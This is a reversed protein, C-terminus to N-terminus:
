GRSFARGARQADGYQAQGPAPTPGGYSDGAGGAGYSDLAADAAAATCSSCGSFIAATVAAIHSSLGYFRNATAAVTTCPITNGRPPFGTWAVRVILQEPYRFWWSIVYQFIELFHEESKIIIM